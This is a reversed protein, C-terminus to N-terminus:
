KNFSIEKKKYIIFCNNCLYRFGHGKGVALVAKMTGRGGRNTCGNQCCSCERINRIDNNRLLNLLQKNSKSKCESGTIFTVEKGGIIEKKMIVVM